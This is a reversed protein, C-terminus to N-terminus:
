LGSLCLNVEFLLDVSDLLVDACLLVHGSEASTSSCHCKVSRRIGIFVLIVVASWSTLNSEFDGDLLQVKYNSVVNPLCSRHSLVTLDCRNYLSLLVYDLLHLFSQSDSLRGNLANFSIKISLPM